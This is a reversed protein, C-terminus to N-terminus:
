LLPCTLPPFLVAPSLKPAVGLGLAVGGWVVFWVNVTKSLQFKVIALVSLTLFFTAISDLHGGNAVEKIVLPNLAPLVLWGSHFKLSPLIWFVAAMTALDLLVM